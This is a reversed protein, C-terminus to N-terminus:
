QFSRTVEFEDEIVMGEPLENLEPLMDTLEAEGTSWRSLTMEAIDALMSLGNGTYSAGYLVLVRPGIQVGYLFWVWELEDPDDPIGDAVFGWSFDGLDRASARDLNKVDFDPVQEAWDLYAYAMAPAVFRAQNESEYRFAHGVVWSLEGSILTALGQSRQESYQYIVGEAGAVHFFDSVYLDEDETEPTVQSFTVSPQHARIITPPLVAAPLALLLSRRNM